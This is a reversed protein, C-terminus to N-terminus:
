AGRGQRLGDIEARLATVAAELAAVRAALDTGTARPAPREDPGSEEAAATVYAQKLADIDGRYLEGLKEEFAEEHDLVVDFLFIAADHKAPM